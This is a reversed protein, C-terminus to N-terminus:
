NDPPLAPGPQRHIYPLWSRAPYVPTVTPTPTPTGTSCAQISIDDFFQAAVAGAGDNYTGFQLRITQGAFRSLDLSEAGWKQTNDLRRFLYNIAGGPPVIVMGYQLDGAQMALIQHFEDESTVGDLAALLAADPQAEPQADPQADATPAAAGSTPWRVYHLTIQQGAPLTVDQSFDSYSRVNSAAVTIGTRMSYFGSYAKVPDRVAAFATEPIRWAYDREFGGNAILERCPSPTATPMAAADLLWAGLTGALVQNAAPLAHLTAAVGNPIAGLNRWSQGSDGSVYLDPAIPQSPNYTSEHYAAYYLMDAGGVGPGAAFASAPLDPANALQTWTVGQDASTWLQDHRTYEPAEGYKYIELYLRDSPSVAFAGSDWPVPHTPQLPPPTAAEQWTDGGDRSYWATRGIAYLTRNAAFNPSIDFYYVYKTVADQWFPQVTWSEGGDSSTYIRGSDLLYARHETAFTPALVIHRLSTGSYVVRWSAGRDTSKYVRGNVGSTDNEAAFLTGDTAYAPSLALDSLNRALQNLSGSNVPQWAGATRRFVGYDGGAFLDGGALFDPAPALATIRFPAFGASRVFTAGGDHSIAVGELTGALLTADAGFSPSPQLRLITTPPLNTTVTVLKGAGVDYRYLTSGAAAFVGAGDASVGLPGLDSTTPTTVLQWTLGADKSRWLQNAATAYATAGDGTFAVDYATFQALVQTWTAGADTTRWVGGCACLAVDSQAPSFRLRQVSSQTAVLQWSQGNNASRWLSGYPGAVLLKHVGSASKSVAVTHLAFPGGSSLDPLKSWNQGRDTTAWVSTAFVAAAYGDIQWDPSVALDLVAEASPGSRLPWTQGGDKSRFLGLGSWAGKGFDRGVGAFVVPDTPFQPNVALAQAAGGAPGQLDNWSYGAAYTSMPVPAVVAILLAALALVFAATCLPVLPRNRM